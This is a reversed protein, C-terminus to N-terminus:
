FWDWYLRTMNPHEAISIEMSAMCSGFIISVYMKIDESKKSVKSTFKAHCTFNKTM